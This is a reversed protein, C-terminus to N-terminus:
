SNVLKTIRDKEEYLFEVLSELDPFNKRKGAIVDDLTVRCDELGGRRVPWLRIFYTKYATQEKM